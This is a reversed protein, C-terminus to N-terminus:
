GAGYSFKKLGRPVVAGNKPEAIFLKAVQTLFRKTGVPSKPAWRYTPVAVKKAEFFTATGVCRQPGFPDRLFPGKKLRAPTSCWKSAIQHGNPVLKPSWDRYALDGKRRTLM